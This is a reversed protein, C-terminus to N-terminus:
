FRPVPSRAPTKAVSYEVHLLPATSSGSERAEATRRGTGQIVLAMSNGPAWGPRSVIEQVVKSLDPTRQAAAAQGVTTWAAPSWSVQAATQARSSLNKSASTFAPAQDVAHGRVTLACAGSGTEDTTFQVWAAIIHAGKPIDLTQFRLGVTQNGANNYTDNVLELDSSDLYVVGAAAEEADDAGAKVRVDLSGYTVNEAVVVTLADAGTLVGDSVALQLVWTGTGPFNVVTSLAAPSTFQVGAPGSVVTWLPSLSGGVPLGDDAVTGLLLLSQDPLFLEADLGADVVPAKNPAPGTTYEVHLLAAGAADGDRAEATRRGTGTILFVM